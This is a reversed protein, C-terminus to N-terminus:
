VQSQVRIFRRRRPRIPFWNDILLIYPPAERAEEMEPDWALLGQQLGLRLPVGYRVRSIVWRLRLLVGGCAHRFLAVGHPRTLKQYSKRGTWGIPACCTVLITLVGKDYEGNSQTLLRLWM